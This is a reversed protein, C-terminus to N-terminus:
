QLDDSSMWLKLWTKLRNAIMYNMFQQKTKCVASEIPIYYKQPAIKRYKQSLGIMM